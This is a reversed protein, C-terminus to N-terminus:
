QGAGNLEDALAFFVEALRVAITAEGTRINVDRESAVTGNKAIQAQREARHGLAAVAGALLCVELGDPM